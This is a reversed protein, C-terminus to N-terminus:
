YASKLGTQVYYYRLIADFTEGSNARGIADWASMGVGHGSLPRRAAADYVCAVSQLWPKDGGGWVETWARTRGDSSSYYPTVVAAGNYTVVQARTAIVANVWSPMRLESVYGKYVQDYTADVTFNEHRGPHSWHWLVYSRAVTALAKQFELPSVNSTEGMGRLYSEVPLENVVWVYDNTDNKRLEIVGRFSNGKFSYLALAPASGTQAFRIPAKSSITSIGPGSIRYTRTALDYWFTAHSGSAFRALLAGDTDRAEFPGDSGVEETAITTYLGVRIIPEGDTGVPPPEPPTGQTGVNVDQQPVIVPANSIVKIPLAVPASALTAGDSSLVFVVDYDGKKKPTTLTVYMEVNQNPMVLEHKIVAIGDSAWSDSGIDVTGGDASKASTLRLVPDKWPVAGQNKFTLHLTVDLGGPAEVREASRQVLMGKLDQPPAPVPLEPVKPDSGTSVSVVAQKVTINVTAYAGWIWSTNESALQFTEVYAGVKAPAKLTFRLTGTAGPKVSTTAIKSPQSSSMWSALAAVSAHYKPKITYASVFKKGTSSWTASGTNRFRLEIQRTEGPTMTLNVTPQLPAGWWVPVVAAEVTQIGFAFRFARSLM